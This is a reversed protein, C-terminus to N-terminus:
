RARKRLANRVQVIFQSQPSTPRGGSPDGSMIRAAITARQDDPSANEYDTGALSRRQEPTLDFDPTLNETRMVIRAAENLMVAKRNVSKSSYPNLIVMDDDAAMGAVHPNARFYADEGSYLKDRVMSSPVVDGGDDDHKIKVAPM